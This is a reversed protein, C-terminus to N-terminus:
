RLLNKRLILDRSQTPNLQIAFFFEAISLGTDYNISFWLIFRVSVSDGYGFGSSICPRIRGM